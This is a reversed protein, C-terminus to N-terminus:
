PISVRDVVTFELCDPDKLRVKHFQFQATDLQMCMEYWAKLRVKHFQFQIIDRYSYGQRM